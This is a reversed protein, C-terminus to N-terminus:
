KRRLREARASCGILRFANSRFQKYTLAYLFPNMASNLWLIHEAVDWVTQSFCGGGCFASVIIIVNIPVWCTSFVVVLPALKSAIKMSQRMRDEMSWTGAGEVDPNSSSLCVTQSITKVKVKSPAPHRHERKDNSEEELSSADTFSPTNGDSSTVQRKIKVRRFQSWQGQIHIFILINLVVVAAFPVSCVLVSIVLTALPDTLYEMVCITNFDVPSDIRLFWTWGFAILTWFITLSLWTITIAGNVRRHTMFTVYRIQKKLLCYRDFSIFVLMMISMTVAVFDIVGYIKCGYEGFPWREMIVKTLNIPLSSFGILFDALALNFIIVNAVRKRLGRDTLFSVIVLLNGSITIVIVLSYLCPIIIREFYSYENSPKTINSYSKFVVSSPLDTIETFDM